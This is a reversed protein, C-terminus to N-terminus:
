RSAEFPGIVFAGILLVGLVIASITVYRWDKEFAFMLGGAAVRFFPIALLVVVGLEIFSLPNLSLVGGLLYGLSLITAGYNASFVQQLSSPTGSHSGIKFLSLVVGIAIVVSSVVVGYRLLVGIADELKSGRRM